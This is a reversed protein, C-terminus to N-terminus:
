DNLIGEEQGRAAMIFSGLGLPDEQDETDSQSDCLPRMIVKLEDLSLDALQDKTLIGNDALLRLGETPFGMNCIEQDGGASIFFNKVEVELEQLADMAREKLETAVETTFGELREIEEVSTHALEAVSEFGESILFHAMFEDIDLKEMFLASKEQRDKVRREEELSSTILNIDAGTIKSALRVNQGGRGIALSKQADPIVVTMSGPKKELIVKSVDVNGLANVVFLAQDSSWEIVDIKEGSLERSVANVRMGKIGVCVGVPDFSWGRSGSADPAYIAVKARSGADRVVAKIEIVGEYVEPVEQIFLQKLFGPHARSLFIQPGKKEQRVAYIYAKIRDNVNYSERPIMENRLIIGESRGLEVILNGQEIRKVSVSVVEGIRDKFEEFQAQREVEHVTKALISKIVQVDARNLPVLSLPEVWFDGEQYGTKPLEDPSVERFPCLAEPTIIRYRFASVEGTERDIFVRIDNEIGYSAAFIKSFSAEFAQFVYKVDVFKEKAFEQIEKILVSGINRLV